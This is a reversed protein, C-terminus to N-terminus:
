RAGSESFVALVTKILIKIDLGVSWNDIYEVDLRVIEEFDTIDSRGSVQWMGTLGPRFSLRKKHYSQYHEFEDLTPPRTGVLSMDGKLINIFQPFEDLSTKRLFKGVKTIRPDDEMKFMLGDMENQAMLEKKREEADIYMSRFKYMKFIRGNRGVRKQAFFIPGPSDLKILPAVFITLIILVITGVLAGAIDILRKLMLQGFPAVKNAYTVTHFQGFQSLIRQPAEDLELVPIQLHITLGMAALNEMDNKREEQTKRDACIIVEDLSATLCYDVLESSSAVVPIGGVEKRDPTGKSKSSSNEKKGSDLLIIGKIAYSYDKSNKMESVLLDAEDSTAVLLLQRANGAMRYFVPLYKKYLQHVIFMLLVDILVFYFLVKRSYEDIVRTFYLAFTAGALTVLNLKIIEILEQFPGRLLMQKYWNKFLNIILFVVLFIAILVKMDMPNNLGKFFKQHRIYNAIGLSLVLVLCDISIIILNQLNSKKQYMNRWPCAARKPGPNSIM